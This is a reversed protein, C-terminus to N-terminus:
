IGRPTMGCRQRGHPTMERGHPRSRNLAHLTSSTFLTMEIPCCADITSSENSFSPSTTWLCSHIQNPRLIVDVDDLLMFPDPKTLSHRPLRGSAHIPRTKDLFSPSATWFCSHGQKPRLIVDVGDLLMFPRAKTPSHRGRRGSAHIARSQDSFSTWAM